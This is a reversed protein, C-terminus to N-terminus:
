VQAPVISSRMAAIRPTLRSSNRCTTSSTDTSRDALSVSASNSPSNPNPRHSVPTWAPGVGPLLHDGRQGAGLPEDVSGPHLAVIPEALPKAERYCPPLVWRCPRRVSQPCRNRDAQAAAMLEFPYRAAVGAPQADLFDDPQRVNGAEFHRQGRAAVVHHTVGSSARCTSGSSIAAVIWVNSASPWCTGSGNDAYLPISWRRTGLRKCWAKAWSARASPILRFAAAAASKAAPSPTSAVARRRPRRPDLGHLCPLSRPSAPRRRRRRVVWRRAHPTPQPRSIQHTASPTRSARSASVGRKRM